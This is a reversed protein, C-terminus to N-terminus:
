QQAPDRHQLVEWGRGSCLRGAQPLAWAPKDPRVTHPDGLVKLDPCCLVIRLLLEVCVVSGEFCKSMFVDDFLRLRKLRARYMADRQEYVSLLAAPLRNSVPPVQSRRYSRM